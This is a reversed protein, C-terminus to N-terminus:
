ITLDNESQVKFGQRFITIVFVAFTGLLLHLILNHIDRFNTKQMIIFHVLLYIITGGILNLSAFYNLRKIATKTFLIEAKFTKFILSLLYFFISYFLLTISITIIINMKYDGKIVAEGLLPIGIAFRGENLTFNGALFSLLIYILLVGISIALFRTIFFLYVSLSKPGFIKM